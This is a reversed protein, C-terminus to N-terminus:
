VSFTTILTRYDRFGKTFSPHAGRRLNPSPLSLTEPSFSKGEEITRYWELFRARLRHHRCHHRLAPLALLDEQHDH